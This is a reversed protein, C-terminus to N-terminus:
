QDIISFMFNSEAVPTTLREVVVNLPQWDTLYDRPVHGADALAQTLIQEAEAYRWAVETRDEATIPGMEAEVGMRQVWSIEPDTIHEVTIGADVRDMLMYQHEMNDSRILGYHVPMRIWQPVGLEMVAQIADMRRLALSMNMGNKVAEKVLLDDNLTYIRANTGEAFFRRMTGETSTHGLVAARRYEHLEERLGPNDAFLERGRSTLVVEGGEISFRRWMAGDPRQENGRITGRIAMNFM